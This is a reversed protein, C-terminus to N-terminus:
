SKTAHVATSWGGCKVGVVHLNQAEFFRCITFSDRSTFDGHCLQGYKNWGSTLLSGNETVVATHRSGCSVLTANVEEDNLRPLDLVQPTCLVNVTEVGTSTTVTRSPLGLQGSENWGWVYVDGIDTAM